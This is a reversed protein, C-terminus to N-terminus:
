YNYCIHADDLTRQRRQQWMDEREVRQVLGYRLRGLGTAALRTDVGRLPRM